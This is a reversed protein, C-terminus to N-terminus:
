RRCVCTDDDVAMKARKPCQFFQECVAVGGIGPHFPIEGGFHPPGEDGKHKPLDTASRCLCNPWEGYPIQSASPCAFSNECTPAGPDVLVDSGCSCNPLDGEAQAGNPCMYIRCSSEAWSSGPQQILLGAFLLAALFWRM